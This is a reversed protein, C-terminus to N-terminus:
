GIEKEKSISIRKSGDSNGVLPKCATEAAANGNEKRWIKTMGTKCRKIYLSEDIINTKVGINQWMFKVGSLYASASKPNICAGEFRLYNLYGIAVSEEFSYYTSFKNTHETWSAPVTLMRVDTGYFKCFETFRNWATKYLKKTIEEVSEWVCTEGNLLVGMMFDKQNMRLEQTAIISSQNASTGPRNVKARSTEALGVASSTVGSKILYTTMRSSDSNM